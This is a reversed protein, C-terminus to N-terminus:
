DRRKSPLPSRRLSKLAARRESRRGSISAPCKHTSRLYHLPHLSGKKYEPFLSQANTWASGKPHRSAFQEAKAAGLVRNCCLCVPKLQKTNLSLGRPYGFNQFVALRATNFEKAVIARESKASSSEESEVLEDRRSWCKHASGRVPNTYSKM